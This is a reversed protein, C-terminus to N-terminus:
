HYHRSEIRKWSATKPHFFHSEQFARTIIRRKRLELIGQQLARFVQIGNPAKKSVVFHREGDLVVKVNPVPVLKIGYQFQNLGSDATSFALLLFDARGGAVMKFMSSVKNTSYIQKLGLGRLTDWDVHWNKQSVASFQRLDKHSKVRLLDTHTPLTFIGKEMEGYRIIPATKYFLSDDIDIGWLTEAPMTVKGSAARELARSYNPMPNIVLRAEFGALHFAQCILILEVVARPMVQPVGYSTIKECPTIA